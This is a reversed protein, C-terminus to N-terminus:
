GNGKTNRVRRVLFVIAAVLSVAIIIYLGAEKIDGIVARLAYGFVFGAVGVVAAWLLAGIANLVLFRVGSIDSLGIVIPSVTRMGYIFRFGIIFPTRYATLARNVREIGAKWSPRETLFSAAPSRAIHFLVQDSLFGGGSAALVVWRIDLLGAHAFIGGLVVPTEGELLTGLFIAAYGYTEILHQIMPTMAEGLAPAFTCRFCVPRM